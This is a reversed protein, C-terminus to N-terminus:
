LLDRKSLLETFRIHEIIFKSLLQPPGNLIKRFPSVSSSIFDVVTALRELGNSDTKSKQHIESALSQLNLKTRPGRLFKIELEQVLQNLETKSCGCAALQHKLVSLLPLSTADRLAM